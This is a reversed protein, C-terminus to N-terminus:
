PRGTRRPPVGRHRTTGRKGGGKEAKQQRQRQRHRCGRRGGPRERLLDLAERGHGLERGVRGVARQGLRGRPGHEIALCPLLTVGREQASRSEIHLRELDAPVQDRARAGVDVAHADLAGVPPQDEVVAPEDPHGLTGPELRPARVEDPGGRGGRFGDGGDVAREEDVRRYLAGAAERQRHPQCTAVDQQRGVADPDGGEADALELVDPHVALRAGDELRAQDALELIAPGVAAHM